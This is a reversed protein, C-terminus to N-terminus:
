TLAKLGFFIFSASFTTHEKIVEEYVEDFAKMYM